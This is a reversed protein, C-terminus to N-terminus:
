RGDSGGVRLGLRDADERRMGLDRHGCHPCFRHNAGLEEGCEPNGCFVRFDPFLGDDCPEVRNFFGDQLGYIHTRDGPEHVKAINGVLIREPTVTTDFYVCWGSERDAATPDQKVEVNILEHKM